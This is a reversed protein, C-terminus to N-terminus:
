TRRKRPEDAVVCDVVGLPPYNEAIRDAAARDVPYGTREYANSRRVLGAAELRDFEHAPLFIVRRYGVVRV